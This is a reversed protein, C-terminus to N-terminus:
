TAIPMTGDHPLPPAWSCQGPHLAHDGCQDGLGQHGRQHCGEADGNRLAGAAGARVGSVSVVLAQM